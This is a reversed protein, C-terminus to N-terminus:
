SVERELGPFEGTEMVRWRRVLLWRSALDRAADQAEEKTAYRMGNGAWQGSNDAIVQVRFPLLLKETEETGM